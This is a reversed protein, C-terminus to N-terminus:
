AAVRRRSRRFLALSVIGVAVAFWLTCLRILLTASVAKARAVDAAMGLASYRAQLLGSMTGETIGLGGPFLIVVAGAVAALAFSYTAFLFPVGAGGGADMLSNAILWFGLCELGWGITAVFTPLVLERPTTLIRTSDFAHSLRPAFRGVVPLRGLLNCVLHAVRESGFIVLLFACLVLTVWFIWAYEPQTAIGSVGVLVLFALLDTFREAIVIPATRTVPSGDVERIMWSKFVEGLKGPTVTLSLGALYILFSTGTTLKVDLLKCYRQWRAFRVVYNLFSLGCALPLLWLNFGALAAWIGAADAWLVFGAYVLLGFFLGFFLRRQLVRPDPLENQSDQV